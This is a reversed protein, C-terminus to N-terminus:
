RKIRIVEKKVFRNIINVASIKNKSSIVHLNNTNKQSIKHNLM